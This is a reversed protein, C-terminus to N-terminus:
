VIKKDIAPIFGFEEIEEVLTLETDERTSEINITNYNIEKYDENSDKSHNKIHLNNSISKRLNDIM